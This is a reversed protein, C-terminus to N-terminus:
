GLSADLASAIETMQFRDAASALKRVGDMQMDKNCLRLACRAAGCIRLISESISVQIIPEGDRASEIM